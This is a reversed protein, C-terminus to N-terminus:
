ANKNYQQIQTIFDADKLLTGGVSKFLLNAKSYIPFCIREREGRQWNQQITTPGQRENLGRWRNSYKILKPIYQSCTRECEDEKDNFKAANNCSAKTKRWSRPFSYPYLIPSPIYQSVPENGEEEKKALAYQNTIPFEAGKVLDRGVSQFVKNAKPYITCYTRECWHEKGFHKQQM